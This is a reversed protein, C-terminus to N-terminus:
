VVPASLFLNLRLKKQLKILAFISPVYQIFSIFVSLSLLFMFNGILVLIIACIFTIITSIYPTGHPTKNSFSHPFLGQTSLSSAILPSNFAFSIALGTISIIMGITIINYGINGIIKELATAAPLLSNEINPGLIGISVFSILFYLITCTAIVVILAIPINKKPNNMKAAAVPLFSFGVFAYFVVGLAKGADNFLDKYDNLPAPLIPSLNTKKVFFIGIIIFGIIIILKVTSSINNLYKLFKPGFFSSILLLLLFCIASIRYINSNSLVPFIDKLVTLLAASETALITVSLFWSCFGVEFGIFPGFAVFSYRWAAGDETIKSALEAYCLAIMLVMFSAFFVMFISAVKLDAYLKGPLLFIGSGIIGNVGLLFISFLNLKNSEGM